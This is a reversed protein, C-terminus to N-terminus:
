WVEAKAAIPKEEETGSNPRRGKARKGAQAARQAKLAPKREKGGKKHLGENTNIGRQSVGDQDAKAQKNLL